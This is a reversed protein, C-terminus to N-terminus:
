NLLLWIYKLEWQLQAQRASSIEKEPMWDVTNGIHTHTHSHYFRNWYVSFPIQWTYNFILHHLNSYTISHIWEQTRSVYSELKSHSSPSFRMFWWVNKKAQKDLIYLVNLSINLTLHIYFKMSGSKCHSLCFCCAGFCYITLTDHIVIEHKAKISPTWSLSNLPQTRTHIANSNGHCHM